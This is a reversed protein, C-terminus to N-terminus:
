AFTNCMYMGEQPSTDCFTSTWQQSAGTLEKERDEMRKLLTDEKKLLLKATDIETHTNRLETEMRLLVAKREELQAAIEYVLQQALQEKACALELTGRSVSQEAASIISRLV